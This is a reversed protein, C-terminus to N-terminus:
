SIKDRIEFNKIIDYDTTFVLDLINNGRTPKHVWQKLYNDLYFTELRLCEANTQTMNEFGPCNFDGMVISNKDNILISLNDYLLKDNIASINPPRYTLILRYKILNGIDVCMIEINDINTKVEAANVNNKVYIMLGGGIQNKRERSFIQYGPIAYEGIYDRNKSDIWTEVIAAIDINNNIITAMCERFINRMSRANFM